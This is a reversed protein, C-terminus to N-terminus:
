TGAFRGYPFDNVALLTRELNARTARGFLQRALAEVALEVPRNLARLQAALPEPPDARLLDDRRM